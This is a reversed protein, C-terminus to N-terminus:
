EHSERRMQEVVARILDLIAPTINNPYPCGNEALMTALYLMASSVEPDRM